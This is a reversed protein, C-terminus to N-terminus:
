SYSIVLISVLAKIILASQGRALVEVYKYRSALLPIGKQPAFEGEEDTYPSTESIFLLLVKFLLIKAKNM